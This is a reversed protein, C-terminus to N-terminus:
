AEEGYYVHKLTDAPDPLPSSEAFAVAADIATLVEKEV